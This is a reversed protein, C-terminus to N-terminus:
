RASGSMEAAFNKELRPLDDRYSRRIARDLIGIRLYAEFLDKLRRESHNRVLFDVFAYSQLYAAGAAGPPLHGFSPTSLEGLAPLTGNRARAGLWARQQEGIRRQGLARAEFWEATGENLWAPFVLSPAEADLAAHVLEHHLVAVLRDTVVAEGRIHISDGYFGAAPFRFLGAFREDFIQPDYIVVTIPRSPRIGLLADLRDYASELVGLIQQEFRRSGRFGSTRDIDVDQYLVFHPSTRKSFQGDAGKDKALALSSTLGIAVTLVLATRALAGFRKRDFVENM